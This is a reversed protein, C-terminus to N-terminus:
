SLDSDDESESYIEGIDGLSKLRKALRHNFDEMDELIEEKDSRLIELSSKVYQYRWIRDQKSWNRTHGDLWEEVSYLIDDWHKGMNMMLYSYDRHEFGWEVPVESLMKSSFGPACALDIKM